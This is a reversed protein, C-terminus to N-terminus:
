THPRPATSMFSMTPMVSATARCKLRASMTGGRSRTNANTESSSCPPLYPACHSTSLRGSRNSPTVSAIPSTPPKESVTGVRSPPSRRSYRMSVASFPRDQIRSAARPRAPCPEITCSSLATVAIASATARSPRCWNGSTSVSDTSCNRMATPSSVPYVNSTFEGSRSPAM